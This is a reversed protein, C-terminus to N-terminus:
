GKTKIKLTEDLDWDALDELLRYDTMDCQVPTISIFNQDVAAGDIQSDGGFSQMDRGQWYYIRNRPDKRKEITEAQCALTRLYGFFNEFFYVVPEAEGARAELARASRCRNRRQCWWIPNGHRCM